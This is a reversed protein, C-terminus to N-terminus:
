LFYSCSSIHPIVKTDRIGGMEVVNDWEWERDQSLDLQLGMRIKQWFTIGIEEGM